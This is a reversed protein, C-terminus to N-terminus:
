LLACRGVLDWGVAGWVSNRDARAKFTGIATTAYAYAEYFWYTDYYFSRLKDHADDRFRFQAHAGIAKLWGDGLELVPDAAVYWYYTGSETPVGYGNGYIHEDRDLHFWHNAGVSIPLHAEKKAAEIKDYTQDWANDKGFFYEALTASGAFASRTVPTPEPPPLPNAPAKTAPPRVADQGSVYRPLLAAITLLFLTLYRVLTLSM